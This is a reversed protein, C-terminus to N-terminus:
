GCNLGRCHANNFLANAIQSTDITGFSVVQVTTLVLGVVDETVAAVANVLQTAVQGAHAQTPAAFSFFVLVFTISLTQLYKVDKIFFYALLSEYFLIDSFSTDQLCFLGAARM